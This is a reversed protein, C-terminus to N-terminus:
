MLFVRCMSQRRQQILRWIRWCRLREKNHWSTRQISLIPLMAAKQWCTHRLSRRHISLSLSHLALEVEEESASSSIWWEGYTRTQAIGVQGPFLSARVNAGDFDNSWNSSNTEEFDTSMWPGNAIVAAGSSMFTNAADPYAAGVSNSSANNQLLSQLKTVSDLIVPQNFDTIKEDIGSNLIEAGGEENAILATWFLATVWANEATSFAIKQDGLATTFDDMTMASLDEQTDWLATNYFFGTPRVTALPMSYIAGDESTCYDIGDALLLDKIEPTEDLWGSLDYAM